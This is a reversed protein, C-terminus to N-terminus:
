VLIQAHAIATPATLLYQGDAGAVPRVSLGPHAGAADDIVPTRSPAGDSFSCAGTPSSRPKGM